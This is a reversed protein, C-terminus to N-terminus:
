GRRLCHVWPPDYPFDALPGVGVWRDNAADESILDKELEVARKQLADRTRRMSSDLSAAAAARAQVAARVDAELGPQEATLRRRPSPLLTHLGHMPRQRTLPAWDLRGEMCRSMGEAPGGLRPACGMEKQEEATLQSRMDTALERDLAAVEEQLKRLAAEHQMLARGVTELEGRVRAEDGHLGDLEAKTSRRRARAQWAM